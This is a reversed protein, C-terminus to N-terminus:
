RGMGHEHHYRLRMQGGLDLTGWDGGAIPMLKFSDGFCCGKYCPDNLYSFDNAYFVGKHSGACPNIAPNKKDDGAGCGVGDSCGCADDNGGGACCDSLYGVQNAGQSFSDSDFEAELSNYFSTDLLEQSYTPSTAILVVTAVCALACFNKSM